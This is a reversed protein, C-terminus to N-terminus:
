RPRTTASCHAAATIEPEESKLQTYHNRPTGLQTKRCLTIIPNPLQPLQHIRVSGTEGEQDSQESNDPARQPIRKNPPRNRTPSMDEVRTLRASGNTKSNRNQPSRRTTPRSNRRPTPTATRERQASRRGRRPRQRPTPDPVKSISARRRATPTQTLRCKWTAM